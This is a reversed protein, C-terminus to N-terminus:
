GSRSLNALRSDACALTGDPTVFVSSGESHSVTCQVSKRVFAKLHRYGVRHADSELKLSSPKFDTPMVLVALCKARTFAVNLTNTNVLWPSYADVILVVVDSETGQVSAVTVGGLSPDARPLLVQMTAETGAVRYWKLAERMQQVIVVSVAAFDRPVLVTLLGTMSRHRQLWSGFAVPSYPPRMDEPWETTLVTRAAEPPPVAASPCPYLGATLERLAAPGRFPTTLTTVSPPDPNKEAGGAGRLAWALLNVGDAAQLQLPDGCIVLRGTEKKLRDVITCLASLPLKQAEDVVVVDFESPLYFLLPMRGADTLPTLPHLMLKCFPTLGVICAKPWPYTPRYILEVDSTDPFRTKPAFHHVFTKKSLETGLVPQLGAMVNGIAAHNEGVVATHMAHAPTKLQQFAALVQRLVSTKGTGPRGVVATVRQTWTKRVAAEQEATFSSPLRCGGPLLQMPAAPQNMARDWGGRAALRLLQTNRPDLFRSVASAPPMQGRRRVALRKSQLWRNERMWAAGSDAHPTWLHLHAPRAEGAAAPLVTCAICGAPPAKGRAEPAYNCLAFRRQHEKPRFFGNSKTDAHALGFDLRTRFFDDFPELIRDAAGEKDTVKAQGLECVFTIAADAERWEAVRLVDCPPPAAAGCGSGAGSLAAVAGRALEEYEDRLEPDVVNDLGVRSVGVLRAGCERRLMDLGRKCVALAEELAGAGHGKVSPADLPGDNGPPLDVGFAGVEEEEQRPPCGAAPSFKPKPDLCPSARSAAAATKGDTTAEEASCQCAARGPHAHQEFADRWASHNGGHVSVRRAEAQGGPPPGDAAIPPRDGAQRQRQPEFTDLLSRVASGPAGDPRHHLLSAAATELCAVLPTRYPAEAALRHTLDDLDKESRAPGLLWGLLWVGGHKKAAELGDLRATNPYLAEYVGAKEAVNQALAAGPNDRAIIQFTLDNERAHDRLLRLNCVVEENTRMRLDFAQRQTDDPREPTLEGAFAATELPVFAGLVRVGFCGGPSLTDLAALVEVGSPHETLSASEAHAKKVSRGLLHADLLLPLDDPHVDWALAAELLGAEDGEEVGAARAVSQARQFTGDPHRDVENARLTGATNGDVARQIGATNGIVARQIGATKGACAARLRALGSKDDEAIGVARAVRQVRRFAGDPYRDVEVARLSGATNGACAAASPCAGCARGRAWRLMAPESLSEIDKLVAAASDEALAEEFVTAAASGDDHLVGLKLVIRKNKPFTKHYNDVIPRLGLLLAGGKLQKGRTRKAQSSVEVTAEISRDGSPSFRIRDPKLWDVFLRQSACRYFPDVLYVDRAPGEAPESFFKDIHSFITGCDDIYKNYVNEGNPNGVAHHYIQHHTLLREGLSDGHAHMDCKQRLFEPCMGIEVYKAMSAPTVAYVSAFESRVFSLARFIGVCLASVSGTGGKDRFVSFNNEEDDAAENSPKRIDFSATLHRIVEDARELWRADYSGKICALIGPAVHMLVNSMTSVCVTAKQM